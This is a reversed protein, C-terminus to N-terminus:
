NKRQEIIIRGKKDSYAICNLEESFGAKEVEKRPVYLSYAMVHNEGETTRYIYKKLKAM